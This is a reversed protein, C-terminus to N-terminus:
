DQKKYHYETKQILNGDQDKIYQLRQLGDYEFYTSVNNPDTVSTKGVLPEYTMTTMMANEPFIRIEDIAARSITTPATYTGEFFKWTADSANEKYWYSLIYKTGHGDAGNLALPAFSITFSGSKYKRGTKAPQTETGATAIADEEFSTHFVQAQRANVVEAIPLTNNYGWIFTTRIDNTKSHELLNGQEYSHFAAREEYNDDIVFSNDVGVESPKFNATTTGTTPNLIPPVSNMTNDGKMLFIKDPLPQSEKFTTIMGSTVKESAGNKRITYKEIVPSIINKNQLNKIGLAIGTPAPTPAFSYDLPYKMLTIIQEGVVSNTTKTEIPQLHKDSYKYETTTEIYKTPESQSYLRDTSQTNYQFGSNLSYKQYQYWNLRTLISSFSSSKDEYIRGTKVSITKNYTKTPLITYTLNTEKINLLNTNTINVDYKKGVNRTLAGRQWDISTQPAFPFAVIGIDPFDNTTTFYHYNQGGIGNVGEKIAVQSYGIHSGQTTTMASQSQSTLVLVNYELLFSAHQPDGAEELKVTKNYQYAWNCVLVGSSLLPYDANQYSYEKTICNTNTGDSCSMTKAVRAGGTKINIYKKGNATIINLSKVSVSARVASSCGFGQGGRNVSVHINYNGSPLTIKFPSSQLTPPSYSLGAGRREINQEFVRQGNENNTIVMDVMDDVCPINFDYSIEVCNAGEEIVITKTDMISGSSSISATATTTISSLEASCPNCVKNLESSYEHQEYFLQTNGGTPYIIKTLLGARIGNWNPERNGGEFNIQYSAGASLNIGTGKYSPLLTTNNAVNYYGWHDQSKLVNENIVPIGGIYEFQYPPKSTDEILQNNQYSIGIEKISKLLIRNSYEYAFIFKKIIRDNIDVIQVEGLEKQKAGGSTNTFGWDARESGEIFKIKGNPFRIETLVQEYASSGYYTTNSHKSIRGMDFEPRIELPIERSENITPPLSIQKPTYVFEIVDNNPTTIKSLYWTNCFDPRDSDGLEINPNNSAELKDFLYVNGSNDTIKFSEIVGKEINLTRNHNFKAELNYTQQPVFIPNTKTEIAPVSGDTNPYNYNHTEDFFFKGSGSPFNFVFMDPEGDRNGKTLEELFLMQSENLGIIGQPLSPLLPIINSNGVRKIGNYGYEREDPLGRVQRNIVGNTNLTWGTGVWSGYDEVKMGSYNYSLSIPLVYNSLKIEYLPLSVQSQGTYLSVPVDGYKGLSAANPSLPVIQPPTIENQAYLKAVSIFLGLLIILKKM